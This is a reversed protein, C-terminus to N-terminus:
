KGGCHHCSEEYWSTPRGCSPCRWKTDQESLWGEAEGIKIRMLAGRADEGREACFRSLLNEDDSPAVM